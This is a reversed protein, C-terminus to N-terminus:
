PSSPAPDGALHKPWCYSPVVPDVVLPTPTSTALAEELSTYKGRTGLLQQLHFHSDAAMLPPPPRARAPVTDLPTSSSAASATPQVDMSMLSPPNNTRPKAAPTSKAISAETTAPARVPSRKPPPPNDGTPPVSELPPCNKVDASNQPQPISM